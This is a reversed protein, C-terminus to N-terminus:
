WRKKQVQHSPLGSACFHRCQPNGFHLSQSKCSFCTTQGAAQLPRRAHARNEYPATNAPRWEGRVNAHDRRTAGCEFRQAQNATPQKAPAKTQPRRSLM